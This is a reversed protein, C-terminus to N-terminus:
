IGLRGHRPIWWCRSVDLPSAAALCVPGAKSLRQSQSMLCAQGDERLSDATTGRVSLSLSWVGPCLGPRVWGRPVGMFNRLSHVWQRHEPCKLDGGRSTRAPTQTTGSSLVARDMSMDLIRKRWMKELTQYGWVKSQWVIQSLVKTMIPRDM